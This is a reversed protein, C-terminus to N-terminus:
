TSLYKKKLSCKQLTTLKSYRNNQDSTPFKIEKAITLFDGKDKMTSM